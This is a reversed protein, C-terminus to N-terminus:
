KEASRIKEVIELFTEVIKAELQPNKESLGVTLPLSSSGAAPYL